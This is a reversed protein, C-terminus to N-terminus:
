SKTCLVFSLGSALFTGEQDVIAIRNVNDVKVPYLQNRTNAPVTKQAVEKVRQLEAEDRCSVRREMNRSDRIVAACRWNEQREM